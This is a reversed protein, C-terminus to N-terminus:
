LGFVWRVLTAGEPSCCGACLWCTQVFCLTCVIYVARAISCANLGDPQRAHVHMAKCASSLGVVLTCLLVFAAVALGVFYCPHCGLVSEFCWGVAGIGVVLCTSLFICGCDYQQRLYYLYTLQCSHCCIRNLCGARCHLACLHVRRSSVVMMLSTSLGVTSTRYRVDHQVLSLDLAAANSINAFPM